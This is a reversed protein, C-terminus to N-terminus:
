EISFEMYLTKSVFDGAATYSDHAHGIVHEGNNTVFYTNYDAYLEANVSDGESSVSRIELRKGSMNPLTYSAGELLEYSIEGSEEEFWTGEKDYTYSWKLVLYHEKMIM